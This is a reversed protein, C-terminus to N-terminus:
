GGLGKISANTADFTDSAAPVSVSVDKGFDSFGVTFAITERPAGAPALSVTTRLRRVLGDDKGIWVDYPGYTANTLAQIKSAQPVKALDIAGRYHTTAVGDVTEDGVPQVHATRELQALTQSPDQTALASALDIGKSALSKQLDIKMWTKGAPLVASLLPSSLFVTTGQVVEDISGTLGGADFDLHATGTHSGNDFDGGGTLTVVQGRVTVSAKLTMHESTAQATNKAASKVYAVPTLTPGAAKKQGGGCAALALPAVVLLAAARARM